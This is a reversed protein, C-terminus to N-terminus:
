GPDNDNRYFDWGNVDDPWGNGDDDLGNGPIEDTNVFISLDPHNTQVGSDIVAIVISENGTTTSWAEPLDADADTRAGTQGTNNLHWQNGFLPDNTTLEFEQYLNPSSRLVRADAQLRNVTELTAGGGATITAVYQDPTGALQHYIEFGEAFFEAPSVGLNLKVIVEDTVIVRSASEPNALVPASWNVGAQLALQAVLMATTPPPATVVTPPRRVVVTDDDLVSMTIWGDLIGGSATLSQLIEAPSVDHRFDIVLEQEMQVLAVRQTGIQYYDGADLINQLNVPPPTTTSLTFIVAANPAVQQRNGAADTAEFHIDHNGDTTGDLPFNTQFTFGGQSDFPVDVLAGSDVRAQLSAVGSLNDTVQGTITVNTNSIPGVSPKTLAISPAATDLEFPLAVVSSWNGRADRAQFLILHSGDATGDHPLGPDFTFQGLRDFIVPLEAGNDIKAFVQSVGTLDGTQGKVKANM